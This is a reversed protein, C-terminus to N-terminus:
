MQEFKRKKQRRQRRSSARKKKAIYRSSRPNPVYAYMQVQNSWRPLCNQLHIREYAQSFATETSDIGTRFYQVCFQYNMCNQIVAEPVVGQILNELNSRQTKGTASFCSSCDRVSSSQRWCRFPLVGHDVAYELIKALHKTCDEIALDEDVSFVVRGKWHDQLLSNLKSNLSRGPQHQDWLVACTMLFVEEIHENSLCDLLDGVTVWEIVEVLDTTRTLLHGRKKCLPLFFDDEFPPMAHGIVICITRTAKRCSEVVSSSTKLDKFFSMSNESTSFIVTCKGTRRGIWKYIQQLVGAHDSLSNHMFHVVVVIECDLPDVGSTSMVNPEIYAQGDAELLVVREEIVIHPVGGCGNHDVAKQIVAGCANLEDPITLTIHSLQESIGGLYLWDDISDDNM